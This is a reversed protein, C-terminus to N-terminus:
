AVSAAIVRTATSAAARRDAVGAGVFIGRLGHVRM